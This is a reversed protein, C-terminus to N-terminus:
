CRGVILLFDEIEVLWCFAFDLDLVSGVGAHAAGGDLTRTAQSKSPRGTV